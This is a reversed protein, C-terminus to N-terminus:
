EETAQVYLFHCSPGAASVGAEQVMEEELLAAPTPEWLTPLGWFHSRNPTTDKSGITKKTKM